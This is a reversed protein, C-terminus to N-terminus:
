LEDDHVRSPPASLAGGRRDYFAVADGDPLLVEFQQMRRMAHNKLERVTTKKRKAGGFLRTMLPNLEPVCHASHVHVEGSQKGREVLATSGGGDGGGDDPHVAAPEFCFTINQGDFGRVRGIVEPQVVSITGDPLFRFLQNWQGSCEWGILPSGPYASEGNLDVCLSAGGFNDDDSSGGDGTRIAGHEDDGGREALSPVRGPYGIQCFMEAQGEAQPLVFGGDAFTVNSGETCPGVTFWQGPVGSDCDRLRVPQGVSGGAEWCLDYDRARARGAGSGVSSGSGGSADDDPRRGSFRVMVSKGEHGVAGLAERATSGDRWRDIVDLLELSSPDSPDFKRAFSARSAELLRKFLLTLTSPSRGCHDPDPSLCKRRDRDGRQKNRENEWKDFLVFLSNRQVVDACYPSNMVLTAFFNEDAVVVYQAYLSYQYPLPDEVLWRVVHHPIAFWQSGVFMHMGRLVSLRAIRHLADDCEVYHFWTIPDPLNPMPSVDMYIAGPRQALEARIAANPKIPYSTGSILQLYHFPRGTNLAFYMAQITANVVSFGGWNVRHSYMRDMVFVNNRGEVARSLAAHVAPAKQDVHVVFTHQPEDLAGVIREAMVANDHVLIVYVVALDEPRVPKLDPEPPPPYDPPRPLERMFVPMPPVNEHMDFCQTHFFIDEFPLPAEEYMARVYKM